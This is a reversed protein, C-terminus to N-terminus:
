RWARSRCTTSGRRGTGQLALEVVLVVADSEVNADVRYEAWSSSTIPADSSGFAGALGSAREAGVWLIARSGQAVRVSAKLTVRRNRFPVGDLKQRLIGSGPAKAEQDRVLMAAHAGSKPGDSSLAVRYGASASTAALEWGAPV